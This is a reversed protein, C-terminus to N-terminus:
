ELHYKAKYYQILAIAKSKLQTASNRQGNTTRLYLALENFWKNLLFKDETFLLPGNLTSSTTDGAMSMLGTAVQTPAIVKFNAIQNLTNRVNDQSGQFVTTQFDLYGKYMNEYIIISDADAKNLLRYGGANALQKLTRDTLVFGRNSRSYKILIGMCATSRLDKMVTDYCAYMNSLAEVKEKDYALLQNIRITDNKLDEYLSYIYQKAKEKEIQHERLNEALFGCFVALFLMLFEWFYHTWKKRSTHTEGSALHAHHHVEM